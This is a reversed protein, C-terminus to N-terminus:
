EDHAAEIMRMTAAYVAEGDDQRVSMLYLDATDDQQALLMKMVVNFHHMCRHVDPVFPKAVHIESM